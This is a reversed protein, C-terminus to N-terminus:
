FTKSVTKTIIGESDNLYFRIENSVTYNKDLPKEYVFSSILISEGAKLNYTNLASLLGHQYTEVIEKNSNIIIYFFNVPSTPFTISIPKNDNNKIRCGIEYNINNSVTLTRNTNSQEEVYLDFSINNITENKSGTLAKGDIENKLSSCSICLSFITIAVFISYLKKM